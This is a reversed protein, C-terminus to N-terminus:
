SGTRFGTRAELPRDGSPLRVMRTRRGSPSQITRARRASTRSLTRGQAADSWLQFSQNGQEAKNGPRSWTKRVPELQKLVTNIADKETKANLAAKIRDIADRDLETTKKVYTM